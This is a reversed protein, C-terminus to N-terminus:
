GVEPLWGAVILFQITIIAVGCAFILCLAPKGGLV